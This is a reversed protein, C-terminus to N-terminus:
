ESKFAKTCSMHENIDCMAKYNEDQEIELEVIYSYISLGLGLLCLFVLSYNLLKTM